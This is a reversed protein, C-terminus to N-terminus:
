GEPLQHLGKLHGVALNHSAHPHGHDAAQRHLCVFLFITKIHFIIAFFYMNYFCRLSDGSCSCSVVYIVNGTSKEM